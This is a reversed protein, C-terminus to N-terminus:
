YNLPLWTVVLSCTSTATSSLGSFEFITTCKISSVNLVDHHYISVNTTPFSVNSCVVICTEELRVMMKGGCVFFSEGVLGVAGAFGFVGNVLLADFGFSAFWDFKSVLYMGAVFLSAAGGFGIAGVMALFIETGDCLSCCDLNRLMDDNSSSRSLMM